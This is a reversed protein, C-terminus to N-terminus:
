VQGDRRCLCNLHGCSLSLSTLLRGHPGSTSVPLPFLETKQWLREAHLLEEPTSTPAQSHSASHATNLPLSDALGRASLGGSAEDRSTHGQRGAEQGKREKTPSTRARGTCLPAQLVETIIWLLSRPEPAKSTLLQMEQAQPERKM